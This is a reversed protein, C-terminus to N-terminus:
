WDIPDFGNLELFTNCQSFHSCGLFGQHASLPSPHSTKLILHKSNDIVAGKKQAYNGWLMFVLDTKKDSLVQIVNDTFQEWGQRQHSGAQHAKVTLTSNLLLVGQKAWRDLNGTNPISKKLDRNIEKYINKLSPPIQVGNNVSFALGNAQNDGHYPDQGLIVVKVRDFPTMDFAHFIFKPPPFITQHQYEHRVFETLQGFYTKDFETELAQRWSPEIKVNM